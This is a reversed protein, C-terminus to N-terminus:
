RAEWFKKTAAFAALFVAIAPLFRAQNLSPHHHDHDHDHKCKKRMRKFKVTALLTTATTSMSFDRRVKGCCGMSKDLVLPSAADDRQSSHRKLMKKPVAFDPDSLVPDIGEKIFDMKRSVRKGLDMLSGEAYVRGGFARQAIDREVDSVLLLTSALKEVDVIAFFSLTLNKDERSKLAAVEALLGDKRELLQKPGDGVCEVVGFGVLFPKSGDGPIYKFVKHDGLVIETDTMEVLSSTKAEFQFRALENIDPVAAIKSLSAVMIKDMKTTTPGKLNLTDSLIGSLLMGAVNKSPQRYLECLFTFAIITCASGWPRVDVYIPSSTCVTASKLSHHDIIGKISGERVGEAMQTRQQHDVLCVSRTEYGPVDKFLPPPDLSWRKLCQVTENNLKSARTAEGGFLEACAIASGISDMDTNTHGVFLCNKLSAIKTEGAAREAEELQSVRDNAARKLLMEAAVAFKKEASEVESPMLVSSSTARLLKTPREGRRFPSSLSSSM